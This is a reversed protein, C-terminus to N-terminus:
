PGPGAVVTRLLRMREEAEGIDKTVPLAYGWLPDVMRLWDGTERAEKKAIVFSGRRDVRRWAADAEQGNAETSTATSRLRRVFIRAEGTEPPASTIRLIRVADALTGEGLDDPKGDGLPTLLPARKGSKPNRTGSKAARM